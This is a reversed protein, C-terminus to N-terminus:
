SYLMLKSFCWWGAFLCSKSFWACTNPALQLCIGTGQLPCCLQSVGRAPWPSNLMSHLALALSQPPLCPCFDWFAPWSVISDDTVLVGSLAPLCCPCLSTQGPLQWSGSCPQARAQPIAPASFLSHLTPSVLSPHHSRLLHPWGRNRCSIGWVM